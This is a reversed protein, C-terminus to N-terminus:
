FGNVGNVGLCFTPYYKKLGEKCGGEWFVWFVGFEWAVLWGGCGGVLVTWNWDGGGGGL